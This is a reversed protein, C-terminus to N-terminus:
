PIIFSLFFLPAPEPPRILQNTLSTMLSVIEALVQLLYPSFWASIQPQLRAPCSSSSCLGQPMTLSAPPLALLGPHSSPLSPASSCCFRLLHGLSLRSAVPLSQHKSQTLHFDSSPESELFSRPQCTKDPDSQCSHHFYVTFPFFSSSPIGAALCSAM